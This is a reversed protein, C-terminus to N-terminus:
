EGKEAKAIAARLLGEFKGFVTPGDTVKDAPIDLANIIANENGLDIALSAKCAVLLAPAAAILRANADIEDQTKDQSEISGCPNGQYDFHDSLSVIRSESDTEIATCVDLKKIKWPGPTHTTKTEM